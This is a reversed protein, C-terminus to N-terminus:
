KYEIVLMSWYHLYPVSFSIKGQSQEFDLSMAAGGKFDPSAFWLKSVPGTTGLSLEFGAFVKPETQIRTRDKWDLSSTGDFNLLHLTQREGIKKGVAAVQGHLPPWYGVDLDKSSLSTLHPDGGDRLLNQYAVMFDYYEKLARALEPDMALSADPFYESSLMHEGLELHAGGFAFIVADALLVAPTNFNGEKAGYNVYAALVSNVAGGSHGANEQLVAALDAYQNRGWVESYAFDTGSSLIEGQGYQDVANLVHKKDPFRDNLKELFDKFGGPMDIRHGGHAYVEGRDGLQDLHWGDFDLHDYIEGTREMIYDQWQANGPDTVLIKGFDGLDHHDAQNHFRDNYVLWERSLGDGAEPDLAGFLLNYFMSAMNLGHGQDIYGKITELSVERNFLDRWESLPNGMGDLPLPVHHKAHWDYFQIGNIHFDKLRELVATRQAHDMPGFSSLFGYRPFKTWDSSVDVAVTGLVKETGNENQVLEVMYGRFDTAPPQWSWQTAGLPEESLIEGLSSYRVVTNPRVETVQFEVPEGPSYRAKDKKVGLEERHAVKPSEVDKEIEPADDGSCSVSGLILFLMALAKMLLKGM